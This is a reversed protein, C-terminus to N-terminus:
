PDRSRTLRASLLSTVAIVLSNSLAGVVVVAGPQGMSSTVSLWFESFPSSDGGSYLGSPCYGSPKSPSSPSGTHGGCVVSRLSMVLISRLTMGKRQM